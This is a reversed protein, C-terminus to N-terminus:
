SKSENFRGFLTRVLDDVEPLHRVKSHDVGGEQISELLQVSVSGLQLTELNSLYEIGWPLTKVELCSDLMLFQLKPMVGREITINNLLPFNCLQLHVLNRFGASFSLNEGTYANYLTLSRLSALAEIHPLLDEELRSWHLNLSTLSHLSFFWRPVMELKGALALKHLHAPPATLADLRLCEEEDPVMLFLDQLLEMKQISACLDIEDREKVNTIGLKTLQTMNGVLRIVNGESEVCALVQLNKLKCIGSPGKTGEIYRFGKHVGTYRYMILHRLNLLKTIGRPLAKINSDRIDLTQLNHLRGISKPLEKIPTKRLNLYRLNFLYVVEDPLKTVPSRELDLIRLLKLGSPLIESVSSSIRNTVFVLFSRLHSMDTLPKIEGDTTQISLRRAGMEKMVEKGDYVTAFNESASESLALERMLDHMKCARPRGTENRRVAQLMSRSVLEMIYLEAVAEPTVGKVHEIFGEAIWLRILRNKGMLYDEPFLSCYLFCRKLRYSLGNFSLLLIIKISELLPNNSLHWNLSNLVTSWEVSSKKSSMLGRLAVIALPLGNCKEVLEWALPELEPPCINDYTPFAKKSFLEKAEDRQLLQIPYVHSEVGFSYSAIDERRTTLIIRSGILEDPFSLRINEWLTIDWVDDLVVLYRKSVLFNTLMDLLERYSMAHLNGPVEQKISQHFEKILSRFLDELVYTQSVTIWAFCNFHRKVTEQTFTNAVLTTKGSGGMGVVSVITQKKEGNILWGMLMQKKGEIGVLEDEKEFLSSEAKTKVRKHVDDSSTGEQGILGYRQKREPIAKIAAIIKQLKNAIRRKYWLNKPVHITKQLFRAFRGGSEKEYMRYMFEDIIDEVDCALNRVNAIWTKEGQTSAKKRETDELFSKMSELELKIEDVEDRVGAISSAESELISVIKGILLDTPASAM